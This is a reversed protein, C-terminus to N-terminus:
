RTNYNHTPMLCKLKSDLKCAQSVRKPLLNHLLKYGFKQNALEVLDKVTLITLDKNTSTSKIRKGTIHNLCQNQIKQLKNLQENTAGNGWLLIGYQLHSGIHAHYVLKKTNTPMLKQSYKLLNLNRTLKLTLKTIHSQWNLYENSGCEQSNLM